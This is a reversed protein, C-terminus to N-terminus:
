VALLPLKKVINRFLRDTGGEFIEGQLRSPYTRGFRGYSIVVVWQTVVYCVATRMKKMVSAQFWAYVWKNVNCTHTNIVLMVVM